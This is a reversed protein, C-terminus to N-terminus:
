LFIDRVAHSQQGGTTVILIANEVFSKWLSTMVPISKLNNSQLKTIAKLNSKCLKFASCVCM